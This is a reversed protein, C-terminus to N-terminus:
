AFTILDTVTCRFKIKLFSAMQKNESTKKLKKKKREDDDDDVPKERERERRTRDARTTQDIPSHKVIATPMSVITGDISIFTPDIILPCRKVQFFFSMSESERERYAFVFHQWRIFLLLFFFPASQRNSIHPYLHHNAKIRKDRNNNNNQIEGYTGHPNPKNTNKPERKHQQKSKLVNSCNRLFDQNKKTTGREEKARQLSWEMSM